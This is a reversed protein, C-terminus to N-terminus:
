VSVALHCSVTLRKYSVAITPRGECFDDETQQVAIVIACDLIKINCNVTVLDKNPWKSVDCSQELQTFRYGIFLFYTLIIEKKWHRL